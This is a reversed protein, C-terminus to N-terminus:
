CSRILIVSDIHNFDKFIVSFNCRRFNVQQVHGLFKIFIAVVVFMFPQIHGFIFSYVFIMVVVLIIPHILGFNLKRDYEIM